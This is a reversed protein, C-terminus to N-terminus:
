SHDEHSFEKPKRFDIWNELVGLLAIILFLVANVVQVLLLILFLMVALKGSSMRGGRAHLRWSIVAFGQVFYLVLSCMALSLVPVVLWFSLTVLCSLLVLAWLALFLHLFWGPLRFSDVKMEFIPDQPHTAAEYMYTAVLHAALILPLVLTAMAFVIVTAMMDVTSEAMGVMFLNLVFRASDMYAGVVADLMGPVFALALLLLAALILTPVFGKLLRTSVSGEGGKGVWAMACLVLSLPMFMNVGIFAWTLVQGLSDRYLFVYRALILVLAAVCATDTTAKPHRRDILLLPLTFLLSGIATMQLVAAATASLLVLGVQRGKETRSM